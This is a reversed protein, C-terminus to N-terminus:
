IRFSMVIRWWISQYVCTMSCPAYYSCNYIRGNAGWGLFDVNYSGTHSYSGGEGQSIYMYSIPFLLVEINGRKLKQGAIM